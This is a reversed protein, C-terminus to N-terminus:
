AAEGLPDLPDLPDLPHLASAIGLAVRRDAGFGSAEVIAFQRAVANAGHPQDLVVNLLALYPLSALILRGGNRSAPAVAGDLISLASVIQIMASRDRGAPNWLGRWWRAPETVVERWPGCSGDTAYDRWVLHYDVDAPEPAFLGLAPLVCLSNLTGNFRRRLPAIQNAISLALWVGFIIALAITTTTM